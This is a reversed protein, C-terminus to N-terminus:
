QKERLKLTGSTVKLHLYGKGEKKITDSQDPLVACIKQNIQPAIYMNGSLVSIKGDSLVKGFEARINGSSISAKLTDVEIDTLKLNGSLVEAHLNQFKGRIDANGSMISVALKEAKGKIDVNGSAVEINLTSISDLGLIVDTWCQSCSMKPKIELTLRHKRNKKRIEFVHLSTDKSHELIKLYPVSSPVVRVNGVQNYIHINFIGYITDTTVFSLIIASLLTLM